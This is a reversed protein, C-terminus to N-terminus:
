KKNIKKAKIHYGATSYNSKDLRDILHMFILKFPLIFLLVLWFPFWLIQLLINKTVKKPSLDQVFRVGMMGYFKFFGENKLVQVKEFGFDTLFKKYFFPSFGGYYHYPEQHVFGALPASLLVIGGPKVIRSFEKLALIPEPVHELVETCIVVDFYNDEVPIKTIDSVYDIKKYYSKGARNQSSNLQKFDHTKYDCHSFLTRYPATGCGVDLVKAGKPVKKAEEKMWEDRVVYGYNFIRSKRWKELLWSVM